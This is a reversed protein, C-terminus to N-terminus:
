RAGKIDQRNDVVPDAGTLGPIAATLVARATNTFYSKEDNTWSPWDSGEHDRGAIKKAGRDVMDEVSAPDTPILTYGLAAFVDSASGENAHFVKSFAKSLAQEPTLKPATM